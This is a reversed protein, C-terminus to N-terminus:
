LLFVVKTIRKIQRSCIESNTSYYFNKYYSFFREVMQVCVRLYARIEHACPLLWHGGRVPKEGDDRDCSASQKMLLSIKAERM